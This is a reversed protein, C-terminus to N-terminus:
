KRELYKDLVTIINSVGKCPKTHMLQDKQVGNVADKKVFDIALKTKESKDVRRGLFVEEIDRCFWVEEYGNEKVFAKIEDNLKVQEPNSNIDDLDVFYIVVTSGIRYDQCLQKVKRKVDNNKYNSKGGM